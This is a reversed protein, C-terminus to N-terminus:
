SLNGVERLANNYERQLGQILWSAYESETTKVSAHGMAASVASIEMGGNLFEMAFAHRFSHPNRYPLGAVRCRRMLVARLGDVSLPGRVRGHGDDAVFLYESSFPPRMEFYRALEEVLAPHFPVPRPKDGKTGREVLLIRQEVDIDTPRLSLTETLRLGSYFLVLLLCRDRADIWKEVRISRFLHLFEAKTIRRKVRRLQKPKQIYRTPNDDILHRQTAWKFWACLATFHGSVTSSARKAARMAALYNEITDPRKYEEGSDAAYTLYSNICYRYWYLTNPACGVARKATLFRDLLAFPM